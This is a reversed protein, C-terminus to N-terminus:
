QAGGKKAPSPAPSKMKNTINYANPFPPLQGTTYVKTPHKATGVNDMGPPVPQPYNSWDFGDHGPPVYIWYGHLPQFDTLNGQWTSGEDMWAYSYSGTAANYSMILDSLFLYLGGEFGDLGAQSIAVPAAWVSGVANYGPAIQGMNYSPMEVVNGFTVITQLDPHDEQVYVWYSESETLENFEGQWRSSELNYWCMQFQGSAPDWRLIQDSDEPTLGGTLQNGLVFDVNKNVPLLPFSFQTYGHQVDLKWFGVTNSPGSEVASGIQGLLFLLPLLTVVARKLTMNAGKPYVM